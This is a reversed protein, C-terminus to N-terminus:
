QVPNNLKEIQLDIFNLVDDYAEAMGREYPKSSRKDHEKRRETVLRKLDNLIKREKSSM